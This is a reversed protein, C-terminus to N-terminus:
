REGVLTEVGDLEDFVDDSLAMLDDEFEDGHQDGSTARRFVRRFEEGRVDLVKVANDHSALWTLDAQRRLSGLGLALVYVNKLQGRRIHTRLDELTRSNDPHMGALIELLVDLNRREASVTCEVPKRGPPQAVLTVECGRRLMERAATATFSLALEFGPFRQTGLRQLNTDLLILVRKAQPEEYEKVLPKTLRASTRWHIWKPNDGHRYERLGRFDHEELSPRTRRIRQLAIEMEQFFATDLVGLRPYAVLRGPERRQDHSIWLGFPFITALRTRGFHYIGRRRVLLSYRVRERGRGPVAVAFSYGGSAGSAWPTRPVAKPMRQSEEAAFNRRGPAVTARLNESIVLAGAPLRSENTVTLTVDIAEGAFTREACRRRLRLNRLSAGGLFLTTCLISFLVLCVLLPINSLEPSRSALFACLITLCAFLFGEKTIRLATRLPWGAIKVMVRKAYELIARAKAM